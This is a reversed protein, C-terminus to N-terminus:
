RASGADSRALIRGIGAAKKAAEVIEVLRIADEIPVPPERRTTVCELFDKMEAVYMPGFGPTIPHREVVKQLNSPGVNKSTTHTVGHMHSWELTGETGVVKCTRTYQQQVCDVHIEVLFGGEVEAVLSATDEADMELDSFKGAFGRVQHIEGFLWRVSDFEHSADVMIGGGQGAHATYNSRYDPLDRWYPLYYGYEVRAHVPRGIAGSALLAKLKLLGEHFRLNYGTYVIRGAARAERALDKTGALRDALPKEVFVDAGARVALLALEVHTAPPTCVLVCDPKSALAENLSAAAEAKFDTVAAEQAKPNADHVILKGADLNLLNALHRRGISGCGIVLIRRPAQSSPRGSHPPRAKTM